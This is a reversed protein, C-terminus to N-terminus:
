LKRAKTELELRSKNGQDKHEKELDTNNAMKAAISSNFRSNIEQDLDNIENVLADFEDKGEMEPAIASDSCGM